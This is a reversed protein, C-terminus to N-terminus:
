PTDVDTPNPVSKLPILALEADIAANDANESQMRANVRTVKDEYICVDDVLSLTVRGM